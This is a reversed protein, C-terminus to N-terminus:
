NEREKKTFSFKLVKNVSDADWLRKVGMITHEMERIDVSGDPPGDSLWRRITRESVGMKDALDRDSYYDVPEREM